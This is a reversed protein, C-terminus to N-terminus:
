PKYNGLITSSFLVACIQKKDFYKDKSEKTM